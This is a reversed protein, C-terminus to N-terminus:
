NLFFFQRKRSKGDVKTLYTGTGEQGMGLRRDSTGFNHWYLFNWIYYFM